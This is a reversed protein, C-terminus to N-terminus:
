DSVEKSILDANEVKEKLENNERSLMNCEKTLRAVEEGFFIENIIAARNKRMRAQWAREEKGQAAAFSFDSGKNIRADM